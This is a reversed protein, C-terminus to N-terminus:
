DTLAPEVVHEFVQRLTWSQTETGAAVADVCLEAIERFRANFEIRSVRSKDEVIANRVRVVLRDVLFFEIRRTKAIEQVAARLLALIDNGHYGPSSELEDSDDM